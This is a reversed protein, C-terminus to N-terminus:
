ADEEKADGGDHPAANADVPERLTCDSRERRQYASSLPHVALAPPPL